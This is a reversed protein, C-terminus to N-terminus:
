EYRHIYSAGIVERPSPFMGPRQVKFPRRMNYSGGNVEPPSPFAGENNTVPFEYTLVGM